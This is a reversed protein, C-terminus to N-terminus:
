VHGTSKTNFVRSNVKYIPLWQFKGFLRCLRLIVDLVSLSIICKINVLGGGGALSKVARSVVGPDSRPARFVCLPTLNWLM